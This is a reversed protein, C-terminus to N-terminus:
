TAARKKRGGKKPAPTEAETVGTKVENESETKVTDESEAEPKGKQQAPKDGSVYKAQGAEIMRQGLIPNVEIEDGPNQIFQRESLKLWSM